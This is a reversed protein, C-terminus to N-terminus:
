SIPHIQRPPSFSYPIDDWTLQSIYKLNYSQLYTPYADANNEIKEEVIFKQKQPCTHQSSCSDSQVKCSVHNVGTSSTASM